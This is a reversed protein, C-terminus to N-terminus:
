FKTIYATKIFLIMAPWIFSMKFYKLKELDDFNTSGLFNLSLEKSLDYGLM